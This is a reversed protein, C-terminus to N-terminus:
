NIPYTSSYSYGHKDHISQHCTRCLTALEDLRENGLHKYTIHHVELSHKNDCMLCSYNDRQLVLQRLQQWPKSKLYIHKNRYDIHEKQTLSYLYSAVILGLFLFFSYPVFAIISLVVLIVIIAKSRLTM